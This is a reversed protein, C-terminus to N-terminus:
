ELSHNIRLVSLGPTLAILCHTNVWFQHQFGLNLKSTEMMEHNKPGIVTKPKGWASQNSKKEQYKGPPTPNFRALSQLFQTYENHNQPKNSIPIRCPASYDTWYPRDSSINVNAPFIDPSLSEFNVAHPM